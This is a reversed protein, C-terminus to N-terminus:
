RSRGSPDRGSSSASRCARSSRRVTACATAIPGMCSGPQVPTLRLDSAEFVDPWRDGAQKAFDSYGLASGEPGTRALGPSDLYCSLYAARDRNRIAALNKEFLARAAAVEASGADPAPTARAWASNALCLALAALAFVLRRAPSPM